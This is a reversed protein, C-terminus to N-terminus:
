KARNRMRTLKKFGRAAIVRLRGRVLRPVEHFRLACFCVFWLATTGYHVLPSVIRAGTMPAVCEITTKIRADMHRLTVSLVTFLMRANSRAVLKLPFLDRFEMTMRKNAAIIIRTFSDLNRSTSTSFGADSARFVSLPEPIFCAGHRLALVRSVFGDSYSGLEPDFLGASTLPAKRYVTTNGILWGEYKLLLERVRLPTLYALRHSPYDTADPLASRRASNEILSVGCCLAAHPYAALLRLSKEFMGPLVVDDAAGFFLCETDALRAGENLTAVVGTNKEKWVLQVNQRGSTLENIVARSNDTSADDIIIVREPQVSQSFISQLQNAILHGHNYNPIVVTLSPLPIRSAPKEYQQSMQEM